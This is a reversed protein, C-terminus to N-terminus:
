NCDTAQTKLNLYNYNNTICNKSPAIILTQKNTQELNFPSIIIQM